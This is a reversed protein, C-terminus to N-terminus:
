LSRDLVLLLRHGCLLLSDPSDGPPLGVVLAPRRGQPPNEPEPDEGRPQVEGVVEDRDVLVRVVEDAARRDLDRDNEEPRQEYGNSSAYEKKASVVSPWKRSPVGSMAGKQNAVM